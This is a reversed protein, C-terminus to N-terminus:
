SFVSNRAMPYLSWELSSGPSNELRLESWDKVCLVKFWPSSVWFKGDEIWGRQRQKNGSHDERVRVPSGKNKLVCYYGAPIDWGWHLGEAFYASHLEISSKCRLFCIWLSSPAPGLDSLSYTCALFLSLNLDELQSKQGIYWHRKISFPAISKQTPSFHCVKHSLVKWCERFPSFDELWLFHKFSANKLLPHKAASQAGLTKQM